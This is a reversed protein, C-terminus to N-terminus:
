VEDLTWLDNCTYPLNIYSLPLEEVYSLSKAHVKNDNKVM